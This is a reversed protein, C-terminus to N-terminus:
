QNGFGNWEGCDPCQWIINNCSMGWVNEHMCAQCIAFGCRCTWNFATVAQCCACPVGKQRRSRRRRPPTTESSSPMVIYGSNISWDAVPYIGSMSAKELMMSYLYIRQFSKIFSSKTALIGEPWKLETSCRAKEKYLTINKAFRFMILFNRVSTFQGHWCIHITISNIM